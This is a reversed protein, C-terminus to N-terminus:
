SSALLFFDQVREMVIAKRVIQINKSKSMVLLGQFLSGLAPGIEVISQTFHTKSDINTGVERCIEDGLKM